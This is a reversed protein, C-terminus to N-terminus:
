KAKLLTVGFATTVARAVRADRGEHITAVAVCSGLSQAGKGRPTDKGAGIAIMLPLGHIEGTVSSTSEDFLSAIFIRLCPSM